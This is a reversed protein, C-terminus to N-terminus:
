TRMKRNQCLHCTDWALSPLKSLKHAPRLSLADLWFLFVNQHVLGPSTFELYADYFTNPAPVPCDIHMGNQTTLNCRM